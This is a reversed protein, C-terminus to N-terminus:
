KIAFHFGVNLDVHIHIYISYLILFEPILGFVISIGRPIRSVCFSFVLRFTPIKALLTDLVTVDGKLPAHNTEIEHRMAAMSMNFLCQIEPNGRM